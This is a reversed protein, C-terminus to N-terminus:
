SKAGFEFSVGSSSKIQHTNANFAFTTNTVHAGFVAVVAPMILHELFLDGTFAFSMDSASDPFVMADVERALGDVPRDTIVSLIALFGRLPSGTSYYCYASRQPTLWFHTDPAILNLRAFIYSLAAAQSSLENALGNLLANQGAVGLQALTAAPGLLRIPTVVDRQPPQGVQGPHQFSFVLNSVGPSTSDPLFDLSVEMVATTGQLDSQDNGARIAGNVIPLELRLLDGSSGQDLTWAGLQGSANYAPSFQNGPSSFSFEMILRIHNAALAQNVQAIDLISITDWSALSIM